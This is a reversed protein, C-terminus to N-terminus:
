NDRHQINRKDAQTSITQYTMGLLPLVIVIVLLILFIRKVWTFCGSKTKPEGGPEKFTLDM